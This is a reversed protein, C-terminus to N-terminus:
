AGLSSPTTIGYSLYNGDYGMLPMHTPLSRSIRSTTIIVTHMNNTGAPLYPVSKCRKGVLYLCDAHMETIPCGIGAIHCLANM